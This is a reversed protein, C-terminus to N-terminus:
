RAGGSSVIGIGMGDNGMDWLGNWFFVFFFSGFGFGFRVSSLRIISTLKASSLSM